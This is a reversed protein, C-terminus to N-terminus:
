KEKKETMLSSVLKKVEPEFIDNCMQGNDDFFNAISKTFTTSREQTTQGDKFNVVLNYM